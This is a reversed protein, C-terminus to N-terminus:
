ETQQSKLEARLKKLAVAIFRTVNQQNIGENFETKSYWEGCFDHVIKASQECHLQLAQNFQSLDGLQNLRRSGMQGPTIRTLYFNLFRFLFRGFFLQGTRSFGNKTSLTYMATRLVESGSGFLTVSKPGAIETIAEGLATQAMEAIDTRQGHKSVFVDVANQVEATFDFLSSKTTLQIEFKQLPVIWNKQRAALVLQTLLYFSYQFGTDYVANKLGAQAAELTKNAITPVDNVLLGVSGGSSMDGRGAVMAVVASWKRSKPIQGLRIHGM